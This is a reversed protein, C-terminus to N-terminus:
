RADALGEKLQEVLWGAEAASIEFAWPPMPTGPRGHLIADILAADDKGALDAPLLPPGLGGKLTMGHCSGCDQRLRYILEQQRGHSPEALSHGSILTTISMAALGKALDAMASGGIPPM